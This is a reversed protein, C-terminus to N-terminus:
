EVEQKEISQQLVTTMLRFLTYEVSKVKSLQLVSGSDKDAIWLVTGEQTAELSKVAVEAEVEAIKEALEAEELIYTGLNRNPVAAFGCAAITPFPNALVQGSQNDVLSHMLLKPTPYAILNDGSLYEGVLTLGDLLTEKGKRLASFFLQGMEKHLSYKGEAEALESPSRVLLASNRTAILFLKEPGLYSFMACDGNTKLFSVLELKRNKPVTLSTALPPLGRRVYRGNFLTNGERANVEFRAGEKRQFDIAEGGQQKSVRHRVSKLFALGGKVKEEGQNKSTFLQVLAQVDNTDITTKTDIM